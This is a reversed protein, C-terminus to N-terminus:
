DWAALERPKRNRVIEDLDSAFELDMAPTYGLEEASAKSRAITESISRHPVTVSRIVAVPRDGSEIVVEEGARVRAMLGAFDSAAEAESIHVAAM